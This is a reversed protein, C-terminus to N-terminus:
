RREAIVHLAVLKGDTTYGVYAPPESFHREVAHRRVSAIESLSYSRRVFRRVILEMVPRSGSCASDFASNVSSIASSRFATPRIFSAIASM